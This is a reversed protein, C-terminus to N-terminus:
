CEVNEETKIKAEVKKWELKDRVGSFIPIKKKLIANAVHPHSQCIQVFSDLPVCGLTEAKNLIRLDWPTLKVSPERDKRMRM